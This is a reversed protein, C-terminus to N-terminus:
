REEWEKGMRQMVLELEKRQKELAELSQDYDMLSKEMSCLLSVFFSLFSFFPCFNLVHLPHELMYAMCKTMKIDGGKDM